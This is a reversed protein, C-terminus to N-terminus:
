KILEDYILEKFALMDDENKPMTTVNVQEGFYKDCLEEVYRRGRKKELL